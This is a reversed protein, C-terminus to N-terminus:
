RATARTPEFGSRAMVQELAGSPDDGDTGRGRRRGVRRGIEVPTEGTRIVETLLEVPARLPRHRGM